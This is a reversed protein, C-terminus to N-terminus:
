PLVIAEGGIEFLYDGKKLIEALEFSDKPLTRCRLASVGEHSRNLHHFDSGATTIAFGNDKAYKVCLGIAGNHGPHMNFTEIGDLLSADMLEMGPRFPHAQILLSKSLDAKERYEALTGPLLDYAESLIEKDLGYLLYDNTNEAFRLEAVFYVQMGHKEAEEKAEEFAGIYKELLEEKTGEESLLGYGYAFHNSLVLGHYGLEKYIQVVQKPSAEGCYSVPHSHAHMEIRYPYTKNLLEKLEKATEKM